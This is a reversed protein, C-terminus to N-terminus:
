STNFNAIDDDKFAHDRQVPIKTCSVSVLDNHLISFHQTIELHWIFAPRRLRERVTCKAGWLFITYKLQRHVQASITRFGSALDRINGCKKKKQYGTLKCSEDPLSNCGGFARKSILM